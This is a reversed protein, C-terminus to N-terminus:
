NALAAVRHLDVMPSYKYNCWGQAQSVLDMQIDAFNGIAAGRPDHARMINRRMQLVYYCRRGGDPLSDHVM